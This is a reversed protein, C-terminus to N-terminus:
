KDGPPWHSPIRDALVLEARRPKGARLYEVSLHTGAALERLRARWGALTRASVKEGGIETVRDDVELGAQVAASGAAVDAVRLEDGAGLLWLGSRDFPDPAAFGANPALYMLKRAYDFAVTFRRLVGGGINASLDPSAFSGKDGTHLDGAIGDIALDDLTLRGFRAPRGRNPGGVGWGVVAETDAGYRDVLNHAHVFPSHLTLSARSGTDISARIPLGDLTGTVIPIREAQEFRLAHAGAPPIFRDPETLLLSHNAYDITVGFRRFMEYGVLGDVVAGEVAPLDGLDIVYFVPDILVANGVRVERAQALALDVQQEGVGRAALKGEAALGFKKAASPTLLNVGGTDVLFRAPKGDIAGEVYIHNNVLEFPILTSGTPSDIRATARMKPVAFDAAAVAINPTVEGIRLETRRRPDTRGATDTLDTTVHFPLTIGAVVRWDDFTTTATDQGQKQIVRALHHTVQDFWLAVLDGGDPTADIVAYRRGDLERAQIAGFRAPLRDTFWYGHSDLWAQSRARRRAEPADLVAVEGGPDRSWGQTGDYGEAGEVPGLQYETLSRMHSLDQVTRFTGDLGGAHLTGTMQLSTVGDWHAAGGAAAQDRSMLAAVDDARATGVALAFVAPMVILLQAFM